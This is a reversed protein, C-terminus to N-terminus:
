SRTVKLCGVTPHVTGDLCVLITVSPTLNSGVIMEAQCTCQARETTEHVCHSSKQELHISFGVKLGRYVSDM